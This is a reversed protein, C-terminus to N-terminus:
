NWALWCDVCLRVCVSVDVNKFCVAMPIKFDVLVIAFSLSEEIPLLWLAITRM